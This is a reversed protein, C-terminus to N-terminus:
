GSSPCTSGLARAGEQATAIEGAAQPQNRVALYAVESAAPLLLKILELRKASLAIGFDAVGTINGGPHSLSVVLGSQVPNGANSFVIPITATAAKAAQVAVGSGPAM